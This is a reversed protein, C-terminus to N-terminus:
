ILERTRTVRSFDNCYFKVKHFYRWLFNEIRVFISLNHFFIIDDCLNLPQWIWLHPYISGDVIQYTIVQGHYNLGIRHYKIGPKGKNSAQHIHSRCRPLSLQFNRYCKSASLKFVRSLKFNIESILVLLLWSPSTWSSCVQLSPLVMKLKCSLKLVGRLQLLIWYLASSNILKLM